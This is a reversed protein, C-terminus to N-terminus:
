ILRRVVKCSFWLTNCFNAINFRGARDAAHEALICAKRSNRLLVRFFSVIASYGGTMRQPCTKGDDCQLSQGEKSHKMMWDQCSSTATKDVSFPDTYPMAGNTSKKDAVNSASLPQSSRLLSTGAEYM